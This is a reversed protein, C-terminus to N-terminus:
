NNVEEAQEQESTKAKDETNTEQRSELLLLKRSRDLNGAPRALVRAFPEGPESVVQSVYAVPYGRPFTDGLGSATLLDGERIDANTPINALELQQTDGSGRAVTRLGNRNVEVPIAHSADSILRVTASFPGVRDIQGIVGDADIVPQGIFVGHNTGRNIEVLHSHPDLDVRILEAIAAESEVRQSSDLLQRLRQNERELAEMRQLRGQHQLNQTRLQHNEAYLSQRTTLWRSGSDALAFPADVVIRLPYVIGSMAERVPEILHERHDLAMLLVSATALLFM